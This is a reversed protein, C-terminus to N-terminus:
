CLRFLRQDEWRDTLLIIGAKGTETPDFPVLSTFISQFVDLHTILPPPLPISEQVSIM